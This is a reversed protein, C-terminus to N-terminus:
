PTNPNLEGTKLFLRYHSVAENHAKSLNTIGILAAYRNAAKKSDEFTNKELLIFIELLENERDKSMEERINWFFDSEKPRNTKDLM